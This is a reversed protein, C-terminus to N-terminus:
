VFTQSAVSWRRCDNDLLHVGGIWRDIGNIVIDDEEGELVRRGYDSIELVQDGFGSGSEPRRFRDEKCTM